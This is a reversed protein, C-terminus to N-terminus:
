EQGLPIRGDVLIADGTALWADVPYGQTRLIEAQTPTLVLPNRDLPTYEFLEKLTKRLMELTLKM